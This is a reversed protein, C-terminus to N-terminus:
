PSGFSLARPSFTAFRSKHYVNVLVVGICEALLITEMDLRGIDKEKKVGAQVAQVAQLIVVVKELSEAGRQVEM